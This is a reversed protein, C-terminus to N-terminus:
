IQLEMSIKNETQTKKRQFNYETWNNNNPKTPQSVNNNSNNKVKNRIKNNNKKKKKPEHYYKQTTRLWVDCIHSKSQKDYEQKCM